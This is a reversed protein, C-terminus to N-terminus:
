GLTYHPSWRAAMTEAPEPWVTPALPHVPSGEPRLGREFGLSKVTQERLNSGDAHRVKSPMLASLNRRSEM